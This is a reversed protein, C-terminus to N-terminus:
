GQGTQDDLSFITADVKMAGDAVGALGVGTDKGM